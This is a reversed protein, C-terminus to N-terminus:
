RVPENAAILAPTEGQYSTLTAEAFWGDPSTLVIMTVYALGVLVIACALLTILGRWTSHEGVEYADHDRANLSTDM